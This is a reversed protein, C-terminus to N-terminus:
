GELATANGCLKLAEAIARADEESRCEVKVYWTGQTPAEIKQLFKDMMYGVQNEYVIKKWGDYEAVVDVTKGLKIQKLVSAASSMGSRMRVTSGSTAVVTAQYLM